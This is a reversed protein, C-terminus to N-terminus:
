LNKNMSRNIPISSKTISNRNCHHHQSPIHHRRRFSRHQKEVSNCDDVHVCVCQKYRIKDTHITSICFFFFYICSPSCFHTKGAKKMPHRSICFKWTFNGLNCKLDIMELSFSHCFSLSKAAFLISSSLLALFTKINWHRFKLHTWEM